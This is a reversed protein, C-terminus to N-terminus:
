EKKVGDLVKAARQAFTLEEEVPADSKPKEVGASPRWQPRVKEKMGNVQREAEVIDKTQTLIELKSNLEGVLTKLGDLESRLAVVEEAERKLENSELAKLTERVIEAMFEPTLELERVVETPALPSTKDTEKAEVVPVEKKGEDKAERIVDGAEDIRSKRQEGGALISDVEAQDGELFEMLMERLKPDVQKTLQASRAVNINTMMSCALYEPLVSVEVLIGRTYVPVIAGQITELRPSTTAKFGISVGYKGPNKALAKATGRALKTNNFTGFVYLLPGDRYQNEISGIRLLDGKHWITLYPKGFSAINRIFDDYLETSDLEGDRNKIAVNAISVFKEVGNKDRFVTISERATVDLKVLQPEGLTVTAGDNTVEISYLDRNVFEGNIDVQRALAFVTTNDVFIDVLYYGAAYLKEYVNVMVEQMTLIREKNGAFLRLLHNRTMLPKTKTLESTPVASFGKANEYTGNQLSVYNEIKAVPHSTTAFVTLGRALDEVFGETIIDTVRGHNDKGWTVWNKPAIVNSSM